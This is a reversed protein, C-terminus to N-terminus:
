ITRHTHLHVVYSSTVVSASSALGTLLSRASGFRLFWTCICSRNQLCLSRMEWGVLPMAISMAILLISAEVKHAVGGIGQVLFRNICLLFFVVIYLVLERDTVINMLVAVLLM